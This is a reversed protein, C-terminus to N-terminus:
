RKKRSTNGDSVKTKASPEVAVKVDIDQYEAEKKPQDGVM